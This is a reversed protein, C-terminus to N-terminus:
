LLNAEHVSFSPCQSGLDEGDRGAFPVALPQHCRRHFSILRLTSEEAQIGVPCLDPSAEPFHM